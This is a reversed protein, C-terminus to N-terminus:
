DLCASRQCLRVRVPLCPPMKTASLGRDLQETALPGLSSIMM